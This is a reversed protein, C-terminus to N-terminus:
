DSNQDLSPCVSLRVSLFRHMHAWRAYACTHEFILVLTPRYICQSMQECFNFISVQLGALIANEFERYAEWITAAKTFHLGCATIASEFVERVCEMGGPLAMGGISYQVYELWVGVALVHAVHFAGSNM